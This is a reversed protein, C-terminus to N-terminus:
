FLERYVITEALKKQLSFTLYGTQVHLPGVKRIRPVRNERIRPVLISDRFCRLFLQNRSMKQNQPFRSYSKIVTPKRNAWGWWCWTLCIQFRKHAFTCHQVIRRSFVNWFPVGSLSSSIQSHSVQAFLGINYKWFHTTTIFFCM